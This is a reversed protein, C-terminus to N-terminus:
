FRPGIDSEGSWLRRRLREKPRDTRAVQVVQHRAERRFGALFDAHHPPLDLLPGFLKALIKKALRIGEALDVTIADGLARGQGLVSNPNADLHGCIACNQRQCQAADAVLPLDFVQLSAVMPKATSHTELGRLNSFACAM